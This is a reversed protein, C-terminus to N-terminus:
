LHSRLVAQTVGPGYIPLTTGMRAGIASLLTIERSSGRLSIMEYVGFGGFWAALGASDGFMDVVGVYEWGVDVYEWGV